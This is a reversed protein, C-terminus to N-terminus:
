RDLSLFGTSVAGLAGRRRVLEPSTAQGGFHRLGVMSQQCKTDKYLLVTPLNQDPYGPICEAPPVPTPPPPTRVDLAAATLLAPLHHAVCGETAGGCQRRRLKRGLVGRCGGTSVIKVFKTEPYAKAVEALCQNLIACDQVSRTPAPLRAPAPAAKTDSRVRAVHLRHNQAGSGAAEDGWGVGGWGVGGVFVGM